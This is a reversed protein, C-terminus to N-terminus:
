DDAKATSTTEAKKAKKPADDAKKDAGGESTEGKSESPNPAGKKRVYDTEYFGDGKFQLGAGGSIVRTVPEGTEPDHTLPAASIKQFAEFTTGDPRRYEYTPM